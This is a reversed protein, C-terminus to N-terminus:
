RERNRLSIFLSVLLAGGASNYIESTPAEITRFTDQTKLASYSEFLSEKYLSNHSFLYHLVEGDGVIRILIRQLSNKGGGGILNTFSKLGTSQCLKVVNRGFISQASVINNITINMIINAFILYISCFM